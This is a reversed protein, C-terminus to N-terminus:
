KKRRINRLLAQIPGLVAYILGIMLLMGPPYIAVVVFLLVIVFMYIFPVRGAGDMNKPSYYRINSVMLLALVATVCAMPVGLEVGSMWSPNDLVTWVLTALIGASGPSALGFFIKSEPATNFRALRLAACAMYLFAVLWGAKGLDSLVWSFMLLAPAVGFAVLDSLSDYQVGFESQTHTPRAIRGDLSDLFGAVVIAIAAHELHGTM